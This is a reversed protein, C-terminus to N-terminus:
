LAGVCASYFKEGLKEVSYNNLVYDRGQRGLKRRLAEDNILLEIKKTLQKVDKQPVLFGSQGDSVVYPVGGCYSSLVPLGCAMAELYSVGFFEEWYTTSIPHGVFIDAQGFIAPLEEHSVTGRIEVNSDLLNKQVLMRLQPEYPGSGIILLKLAPNKRFVPLLARIVFQHGKEPVLRGVSLILVQHSNRGDGKRPPRFKHTDVPHGLILVKDHNGSLLDLEQYRQSALPTTVLFKHTYQAVKKSLYRKITGKFGPTFSPTALTLSLDVLLRAKSMKAALYAFYSHELYLTPDAAVIVDYGRLKGVLSPYFKSVPLGLLGLIRPIKLPRLERVSLQENKYGDSKDSFIAIDVDYNDSVYSYLEAMAEFATRNRVIGPKVVAVRLKYGKVM